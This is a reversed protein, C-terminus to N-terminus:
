GNRKTTLIYFQKKEDLNEDLDEKKEDLDEDEYVIKTNNQAYADVTEKNIKELEEKTETKDYGMIYTIASEKSM